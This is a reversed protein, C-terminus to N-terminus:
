CSRDADTEGDTAAFANSTWGDRSKGFRKHSTRKFVAIDTVTQLKRCLLAGGRFAATLQRDANQVKADKRGRRRFPM